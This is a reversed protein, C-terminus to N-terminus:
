TRLREADARIDDRRKADWEEAKAAMAKARENQGSEALLQVATAYANRIHVPRAIIFTQGATSNEDVVTQEMQPIADVLLDALEADHKKGQAAPVIEMLVAMLIPGKDSPPADFTKRALEIAKPVDGLMAEVRALRLQDNVRRDESAPNELAVTLFRKAQQWREAVILVEAYEWAKDPSVKDPSVESLILRAHEALLKRAEADSIEGNEVRGFYAKSAGSLNNRLVDPAVVGVATPDNPDPITPSQCGAVAILGLLWLRKM